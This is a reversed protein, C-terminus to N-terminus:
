HACFSCVVRNASGMNAAGSTGLHDGMRARRQKSKITLQPIRNQLAVPKEKPEENPLKQRSALDDRYTSIEIFSPEM